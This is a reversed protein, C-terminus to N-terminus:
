SPFTLVGAVINIVYVAVGFFNGAFLSGLAYSVNYLIEVVLLVSTFENLVGLIAEIIVPLNFIGSILALGGSIVGTVADVVGSVVGTVTDVTGSVISGTANAVGGVVDTVGSVLGGIVDGTGSVVTGTVNVAGTVIDTTANAVGTVIESTTNTVGTVVTDVADAVGGVIAGTTNLVGGILDFIGSFLDRRSRHLILSRANNLPKTQPALSRVYRPILLDQLEM